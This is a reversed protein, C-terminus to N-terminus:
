AEITVVNDVGVEYARLKAYGDPDVDANVMPGRGYGSIVTAGCGECKWEDASWLQYPRGEGRVIVELVRGTKNAKMERKCPVCVPRM